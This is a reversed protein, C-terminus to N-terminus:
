DRRSFAALLAGRVLHRRACVYLRGTNATCDCSLFSDPLARMSSTSPRRCVFREVFHRCSSPRVRYGCCSGCLHTGAEPWWVVCWGCVRVSNSHLCCPVAFCWACSGARGGSRARWAAHMVPHTLLLVVCCRTHAGASMCAGPPDGFCDLVLSDNREGDVATTAASRRARVPGGRGRARRRM